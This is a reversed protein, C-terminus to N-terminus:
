LKSLLRVQANVFDTVLKREALSVNHSNLVALQGGEQFFAFIDQLVQRSLSARKAVMSSFLTQILNLLSLVCQNKVLRDSYDFFEPKQYPGFEKRRYKTQHFVRTRVGIWNMYRGVKNSIFSKGRAPLGCVSVILRDRLKVTILVRETTM